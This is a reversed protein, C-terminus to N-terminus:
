KAVGEADLPFPKTYGLKRMALKRRYRAYRIRNQISKEERRLHEPINRTADSM